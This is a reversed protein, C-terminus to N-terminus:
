IVNKECVEKVYIIASNLISVDEKAHGILFNCQVCLLGRVRMTKHDHDVCIESKKGRGKEREKLEEKCIPCQYNQEKLMWYWEDKDINYDHRLKNWRARDLTESSQHYKVYQPFLKRHEPYHICRGGGKVSRIKGGCWKCSKGIFTTENNERAIKKALNM